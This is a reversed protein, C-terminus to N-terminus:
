SNTVEARVKIGKLMRREMAYDGVEMLVLNFAAPRVSVETATKTMAPGMGFSAVSTTCRSRGSPGARRTLKSIGSRTAVLM